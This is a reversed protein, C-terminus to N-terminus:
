PIMIIERLYGEGCVRTFSVSAQGALTKKKSDGRAGARFSSGRSVLYGAGESMLTAPKKQAGIGSLM